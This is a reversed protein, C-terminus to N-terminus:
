VFILLSPKADRIQCHREQVKIYSICRMLKIAKKKYICLIFRKFYKLARQFIEFNSQPWFSKM